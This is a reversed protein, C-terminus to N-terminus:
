SVQNGGERIYLAQMAEFTTRPCRSQRRIHPLGRAKRSTGSFNPAVGLKRAYGSCETCDTQQAEASVVTLCIIFLGIFSLVFQKSM